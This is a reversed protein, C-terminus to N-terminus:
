SNEAMIRQSMNQFKRFLWDFILETYEPPMAVAGVVQRQSSAALVVPKREVYGPIRLYVIQDPSVPEFGMARARAEMKSYSLIRALQSRLDENERNTNTIYTQMTQIDVGVATARASVSLYIGAIFSVFVLCMAILVVIQLQKRRPAQIYNKALNEIQEM